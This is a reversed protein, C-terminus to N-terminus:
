ILCPLRASQALAIYLTADAGHDKSGQQLGTAVTAFRAPAMDRAIMEFTVGQRQWVAHQVTESLMLRLPEERGSSVSVFLSLRCANPGKFGFHVEQANDSHHVLQLGSARTVSRVWGFAQPLDLVATDAQEALWHDHQALRALPAAASDPRSFPVAAFVLAVVFAAAAGAAMLKRGLGARPVDARSATFAPMPTVEPLPLDEGYGALAAKIKHLRAVRQALAPQAAIAQAVRAAEDPHLEGDVFASLLAESVPATM